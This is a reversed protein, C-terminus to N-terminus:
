KEKSVLFEGLAKDTKLIHNILWNSLYTYTDIFFEKTESINDYNISLIKYRLVNHESLHRDIDPYAYKKMLEEEYALHDKIYADLKNVVDIVDKFHYWKANIAAEVEQIISILEKHQEDIGEFIVSYNDNWTIM